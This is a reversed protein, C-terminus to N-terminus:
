LPSTFRFEIPFSSVEVEYIEIDKHHQPTFSPLTNWLDHIITYMLILSKSVVICIQNGHTVFEFQSSEDEGFWVDRM